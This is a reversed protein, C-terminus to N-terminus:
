GPSVRTSSLTEHHSIEPILFYLARLVAERYKCVIYTILFLESCLRQQRWVRKALKTVRGLYQDENRLPHILYFLSLSNLGCHSPM